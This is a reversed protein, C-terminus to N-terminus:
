DELEEHTIVESNKPEYPIKDLIYELAEVRAKSKKNAKLVKWPAIETDSVEFMKEKYETYVDWLDLAKADVPSYKWKKLPNEIIDAFRKAQEEKSISFYLKLLYTGSNVLMKEFENVQSMFVDYEEKTCFGNVPEVVARNYWSRDFFVIEGAKPLQSIYRQFYWQGQEVENPKPLAVVRHERPNLHETIRRIAGGKGAADRGEFIIIVRQKNEVVWNQMKILEEQLKALRKEYKITRLAKDPNLMDSQLLAYLGKKTDLKKYQTDTLEM